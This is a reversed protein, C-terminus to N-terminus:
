THVEGDHPYLCVPVKRKAALDAIERIRRIISAEDKKSGKMILWLTADLDSLKAIVTETQKINLRGKHDTVFLGAILKLNPKASLYGDLRKIDSNGNFFMAIGDFGMGDISERQSKSGTSTLVSRHLSNTAWDRSKISTSILDM